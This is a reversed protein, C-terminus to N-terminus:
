EAGLGPGVDAVAALDVIPKGTGPEIARNSQGAGSKRQSRGLQLLESMTAGDSETSGLGTGQGEQLAVEIAEASDVGEDIRDTEGCGVM